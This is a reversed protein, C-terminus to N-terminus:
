GRAAGHAHVGHHGQAVLSLKKTLMQPELERDRLRGGSCIALPRPLMIRIIRCFNLTSKDNILKRCSRGSSLIRCDTM